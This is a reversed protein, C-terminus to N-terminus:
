QREALRVHRRLLPSVLASVLPPSARWHLPLSPHLLSVPPLPLRSVPPCPWASSCPPSTASRQSSPAGAVYEGDDGDDKDNDDAEDDDDNEGNEDDEDDADDKNHSDDEIGRVEDSDNIEAVGAGDIDM